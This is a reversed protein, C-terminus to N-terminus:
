RYTEKEGKVRRGEMVGERRRGTRRKREMGYGGLRRGREERGGKRGRTRSEREEGKRQM